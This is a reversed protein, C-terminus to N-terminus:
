FRAGMGQLSKRPASTLALPKEGAGDWGMGALKSVIIHLPLLPPAQFNTSQGANQRFPMVGEPVALYKFSFNGHVKRPGVIPIDPWLEQSM